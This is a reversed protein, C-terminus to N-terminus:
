LRHKVSKDETVFDPHGTQILKTILGFERVKSELDTSLINDKNGNNM